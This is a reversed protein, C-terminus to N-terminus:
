KDNIIPKCNILISTGRLFLLESTSGMCHRIKIDPLKFAHGTSGSVEVVLAKSIELKSVCIM